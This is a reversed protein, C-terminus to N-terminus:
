AAIHLATRGRDYDNVLSRDAALLAKLEAIDGRASYAHTLEVREHRNQCGAALVAVLIALLISPRMPPRQGRSSRSGCRADMRYCREGACWFGRKGRVLLGLRSHDDVFRRDCQRASAWGSAM